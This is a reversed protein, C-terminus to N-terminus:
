DNYAIAYESSEARIDPVESLNKILKYSQVQQSVRGPNKMNNGQGLMGHQDEPNIMGMESKIRNMGLQNKLGDHSMIRKM